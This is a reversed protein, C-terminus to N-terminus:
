VQYLSYILSKTSKEKILVWDTKISSNIEREVYIRAGPALIEKFETSEIVSNVLQYGFPPDLFVLDIAQRPQIKIWQLADMNSVKGRDAGLLKLNQTLGKAVMRNKEVFDVHSAGRSLAEFGLAGTGSFLDVVRLGSLDSHLWNFLTERIRSQTPRLGEQDPVPLKRGRWDGGIIRVSNKSNAM